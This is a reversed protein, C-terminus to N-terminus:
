FRIEGNIYLAKENAFRAEATVAATKCISLTLGVAYGLAYRPKLNILQYNIATGQFTFLYDGMKLNGASAKFAIYPVAWGYNYALGIAAQWEEYITKCNGSFYDLNGSALRIMRSLDPRTHFYQGEVGVYFGKCNWVTARGGISWSFYPEYVIGVLTANSSFLSGNTELQMTTEGLTWFVDLFNCLNVVMLGANTMLQTEQVTGVGKARMKRNFVFDGYYGMRLQFQDSWQFHPDCPDCLAGGTCVGNPYLSADMPNGVPLAFLGSTAFSLMLTYLRKM